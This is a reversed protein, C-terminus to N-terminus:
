LMYVISTILRPHILFLGENFAPTSQLGNSLSELKSPRLDDSTAFDDEEEEEHDQNALNHQGKVKAEVRAVRSLADDVMDDQWQDDPTYEHVM